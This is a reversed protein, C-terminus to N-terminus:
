STEKFVSLLSSNVILKPRIYPELVMLIRLALKQDLAHKSDFRRWRGTIAEACWSQLSDTAEETWRTALSLLLNEDREKFAEVVKLTLSYGESKEKNKAIQNEGDLSLMYTTARSAITMNPMDASLLIFRTTSPVEELSKLLTATAMASAYNLDIIIVRMTGTPALIAIRRIHKAKEVTLRSINSVDGLDSVQRYAATKAMKRLHETEPHILLTVPPLKARLM